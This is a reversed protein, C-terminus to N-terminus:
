ETENVDVNVVHIRLGCRQRELRRSIWSPPASARTIQAHGGKKVECICEIEESLFPVVRIHLVDLVKQVIHFGIRDQQEALHLRALRRFSKSQKKTTSFDRYFRHNKKRLLLLSAVQLGFRQADLALPFNAVLM